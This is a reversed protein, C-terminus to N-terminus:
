VAGGFPEEILWVPVLYGMLLIGLLLDFPPWSVVPYPTYNLFSAKAILAPVVAILAAMSSLSDKYTWKMQYYRTRKVERGAAWVAGLILFVGILLFLLSWSTWGPMLRMVVGGLVFLL